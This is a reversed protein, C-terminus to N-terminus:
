QTAADSEKAPMLGLIILGIFATLFCIFFWAVPSRHKHSALMMGAIGCLLWLMLLSDM